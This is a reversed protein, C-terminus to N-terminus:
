LLSVSLYVANLLSPFQIGDGVSHHLEDALNPMYTRGIVTSYTTSEPYVDVTALYDPTSRDAQVCTVLLIRERPGNAYADQPSSYGPGHTCERM